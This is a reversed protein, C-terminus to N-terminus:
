QIYEVIVSTINADIEVFCGAPFLFGRHYEFTISRAVTGTEKIYTTGGTSTGNHLITIGGGGGGSLATISLVRISTGSTGVAGNATLKGSGSTKGAGSAM